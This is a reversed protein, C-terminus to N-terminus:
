YFNEINMSYYADTLPCLYKWFGANLQPDQNANPILCKYFSSGRSIIEEEYYYRVLNWESTSPFPDYGIGHLFSKKARAIDIQYIPNLNDTWIIKGHVVRPNYIKYNPNFGINNNRDFYVVTQNRTDINIEIIWASNYYTDIYFLYLCRTEKDICRGSLLINTINSDYVPSLSGSIKILRVSNGDWKQTASILLDSTNYLLGFVNNSSFVIEPNSWLGEYGIGYFGESGRTQRVGGPLGTWGSSNTAGTNPTTWHTTGTEKLKGGAVSDGGLYTTLTTWEADSSRRPV